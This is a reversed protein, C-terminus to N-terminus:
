KGYVVIVPSALLVDQEYEQETEETKTLFKSRLFFWGKASLIKM